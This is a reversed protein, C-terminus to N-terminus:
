FNEVQPKHNTPMPFSIFIRFGQECTVDTNANIDFKAFPNWPLFHHHEYKFIQMKLFPTASILSFVFASTVHSYVKIVYECVCMCVCVCHVITRKFCGTQHVAGISVHIYCTSQNLQPQYVDRVHKIYKGTHVTLASKNHNIIMESANLRHVILESQNHSIFM